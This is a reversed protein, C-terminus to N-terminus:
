WIESGESARLYIHYTKKVTTSNWWPPTCSISIKLLYGTQSFEIKSINRAVTIINGDYDRRLENGCLSYSSYHPINAFDYRETWTLTLQDTPQAEEALDTSEAMMADQSIRRAAYGIEHAATVQTKATATGRFEHFILGVAGGAVMVTIAMSVMLELLTVGKQGDQSSIM